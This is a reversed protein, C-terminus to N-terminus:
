LSCHHPVEQLNSSLLQRIIATQTLDRYITLMTQADTYRCRKKERHLLLEPITLSNRICDGLVENKERARDKKGVRDCACVCVCMRVCRRAEGDSTRVNCKRQCEYERSKALERTCLSMCVLIRGGSGRHMEYRKM